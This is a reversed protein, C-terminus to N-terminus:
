VDVQKFTKITHFTRCISEYTESTGDEHTRKIIKPTTCMVTRNSKVIRSSWRRRRAAIKIQEAGSVSFIIPNWDSDNMELHITNGCVKCRKVMHRSM